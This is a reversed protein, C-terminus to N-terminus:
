STAVCEFCYVQINEMPDIRQSPKGFFINRISEIFNRIAIVFGSSNAVPPKVYIVKYDELEALGVVYEIADETVGIEDVLGLELAKEGSYVRGKAIERVTEIPINRDISTQTTFKAYISNIGSRVTDEYDQPWDQRVPDFAGWKTTSYGDLNVGLWDYIKEFSFLTGYVGISGTITDNEAYIKDALSSIWYGGSAALSGMSVVVPIGKEKAKEIEWRIYDSAIVSGGPSNVRLVIAKTNEDEHADKIMEVIGDSGAVGLRVDGGMIGGEATIVKVLNKSKQIEDKPLTELYSRFPIANLEDEDDEASGFKELMRKDFDDEEEMIDILGWEIAADWESVKNSILDKYSEDAIWQMDVNRAEMVFDKYKAWLPKYFELNLKAEESMSDRTFSEPGTKFDGAAIIRPTILFKEFFNKYYERTSGFGNINFFSYYPASIESASAALVYSVDNLFDSRVIIEKGSEVAGKIKEALPIVYNIPMNLGSPDFIMSEVNEDNTFDDFFKLLFKYEYVRPAPMDADLIENLIEEIPDSPAKTPEQDVVVGNPKFVVVKGNAKPNNSDLWIPSVLSYIIGIVVALFIGTAFTFRVGKWFFDRGTVIYSWVLGLFNGIKSFIGDNMIDGIKKTICSKSSFLKM